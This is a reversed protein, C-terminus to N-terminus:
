NQIAENNEPVRSISYGSQRETLALNNLRNNTTFISKLSILAVGQWFLSLNKKTFAACDTQPLSTCLLEFLRPSISHRPTFQWFHPYAPIKCSAFCEENKCWWHSLLIRLLRTVHCTALFIFKGKANCNFRSISNKKIRASNLVLQCKRTVLQGNSNFYPIDHKILVSKVYLQESKKKRILVM